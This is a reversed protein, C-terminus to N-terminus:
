KEGKGMEEDIAADKRLVLNVTGIGTAQLQQCAIGYLQCLDAYDKRCQALEAKEETLYREFNDACNQAVRARQEAKELEAEKAALASKLEIVQCGHCQYIGGYYPQGCVANDGHGMTTFSGCYRPTPAETTM